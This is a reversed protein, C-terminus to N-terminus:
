SDSLDSHSVFLDLLPNLEDDFLLGLEATYEEPQPPPGQIGLHSANLEGLMLSILAYLDEKVAIHKVVPQYKTARPQGVLPPMTQPRSTKLGVQAAANTSTGSKVRRQRISPPMTPHM